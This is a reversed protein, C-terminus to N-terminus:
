MQYSAYNGLMNKNLGQERLKHFIKVCVCLCVCMDEQIIVVFIPGNLWIWVVHYASIMM